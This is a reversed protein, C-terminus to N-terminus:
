AEGGEMMEKLKERGRQLRKKISDESMHKAEAIEKISLGGFYHLRIIEGYKDSLSDIMSFVHQYEDSREEIHEEETMQLEKSEKRILDISLNKCTSFLWSKIKEEKTISSHYYRIFTEQVIDEAKEKSKLYSFAFRYLDAYHKQYITTFHEKNM